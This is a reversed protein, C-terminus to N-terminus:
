PPALLMALAGQLRRLNQHCILPKSATPTSPATRDFYAATFGPIGPESPSPATTSSEGGAVNNDTISCGMTFRGGDM